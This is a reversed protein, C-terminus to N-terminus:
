RRQLLTVFCKAIATRKAAANAPQEHPLFASCEPGGGSTVPSAATGDVASGPAKGRARVKARDPETRELFEADVTFNAAIPGVKVKARAVFTNEDITEVTEVGPGCSGMKQPDSVFDWVAARPAAIEVSGSFQM